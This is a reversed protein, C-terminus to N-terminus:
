RAGRVALRAGRPLVGRALQQVLVVRILYAGIGTPNGGRLVYRRMLGPIRICTWLLAVLVALNVVGGAGFGFMAPINVGPDLFVRVGTHLTLAQLVQTGLTGFMTRWWLRAVGDLQPLCHCALAAPAAATLVLLVGMRVIWTFMLLWVLVVILVAVITSLAGAAPNALAAVVQGRVQDMANPGAVPQATVALTLANAADYLRGCAELSFNAAVAAFVLRPALDKVAYRAQVSEHTMAVVGAALVALLYCSNVITTNQAWIERVQPLETVNPTVFATHRLVDVLSTLADLVFGALWTILQNM